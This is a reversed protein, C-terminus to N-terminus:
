THKKYSIKSFFVGLEYLLILPLAMLVQTIADPPTLIAAAIFVLVIAEKRRKALTSPTTMGIKTLFLLIMPLQFVLAFTFSLGAVFSVYRSVTIMPTLLDSSFALLFNMGIPVIILYGFCIGLIFFVFSLPGFILIYKKESNKLGASIFQWTQYLIFPSSALLGGLFVIKINTVFAEQPAIFVLKGVPKVLFPILKDIYNYIVISCIILFILSKIIRNRLEELHEILTQRRDM